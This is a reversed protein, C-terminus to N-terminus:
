HVITGLGEIKLFELYSEELDNKSLSGAGIKSGAASSTAQVAQRATAWPLGVRYLFRHVMKPINTM